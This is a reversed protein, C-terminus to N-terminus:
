NSSYNSDGTDNSNLNKFANFDKKFCKKLEESFGIVIHPQQQSFQNLVVNVNDVKKMPIKYMKKDNTYLILFKSVGTKIGYTRHTINELYAWIIDKNALIKAHSGKYYYICTKGMYISEIQTASLFDAELRDQNINSENNRLFKKIDYLYAGSLSKILIIFICLLCVAIIFIAVYVIYDEFGGIYDVQLIYPLAINDIEEQTPNELYGSTEFWEKYYDYIEDDMKNITGTVALTTTLENRTGNLYEYTEDYIQQARTNDEADIELGIFEEEGVPIIYYQDTVTETGDDSTQYYEAFNSLIAYVDTNVYSNPVEEMSLSELDKPGEYMKLLSNKMVVIAIIIIVACLLIRLLASKMSQKKLQEFM